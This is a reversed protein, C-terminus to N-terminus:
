WIRRQFADPARPMTLLSPRAVKPLGAACLKLGAHKTAWAALGASLSSRIWSKCGTILPIACTPRGSFAADELRARLVREWGRKVVGMDEPTLNLVTLFHPLLEGNAGEIGFSKQHSEMSTLLVERPVELYAPDFDALLPVPHEALGQVEDLLSDKWLVKGGAAAAQANGARLSSMAANPLILPLPAPGPSPPWFNM